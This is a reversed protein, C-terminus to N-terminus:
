TSRGPAGCPGASACSRRRVRDAVAEIVPGAEDAEEFSPRMSSPEFVASREHPRNWQSPMRELGATVLSHLVPRGECQQDLCGLEIEHVRMWRTPILDPVM